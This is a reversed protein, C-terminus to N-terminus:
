RMTFSYRRDNDFGRRIGSLGSCCRGSETAINLCCIASLLGSAQYPRVRAPAHSGQRLAVLILCGSMPRVHARVQVAHFRLLCDSPTLLGCFLLECFPVQWLVTYM